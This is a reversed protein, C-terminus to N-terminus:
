LCGMLWLFGIIWHLSVRPFELSFWRSFGLGSHFWWVSSWLNGPPLKSPRASVPPVISYNGSISFVNQNTTCPFRSKERSNLFEKLFQISWFIMCITLYNAFLSRHFNRHFNQSIIFGTKCNTVVWIKEFFNGFKCSFGIINAIHLFFQLWKWTVYFYAICWLCNILSLQNKRLM